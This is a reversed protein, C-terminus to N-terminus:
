KEADDQVSPLRLLTKQRVDELLSQLSRDNEIVEVAEVGESTEVLPWYLRTLRTRRAKEAPLEDMSRSVFFMLSPVFNAWLSREAEIGLRLAGAEAGSDLGYVHTSWWYRDLVVWVGQQLAPVIERKIANLHAAIHLFQLSIPAIERARADHHFSHVFHGLSGPESGPFSRWICQQGRQTLFSCLDKSATTKGSGDPGEFVILKGRKM